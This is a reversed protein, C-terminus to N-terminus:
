GWFILAIWCDVVTFVSELDGACIEGVAWALGRSLLSDDELTMWPGSRVLIRWFCFLKVSMSTFCCSREVKGLPSIGINLPSIRCYLDNRWEKSCMMSVLVSSLASLSCKRMWYVLPSGCSSTLLQWCTVSGLNGFPSAAISLVSQYHMYSKMHKYRSLVRRAKLWVLLDLPKVPRRM